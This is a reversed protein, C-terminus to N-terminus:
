YVNTLGADFNLYPNTIVDVHFPHSIIVWDHGLKDFGMSSLLTRIGVNCILIHIYYRTRTMIKALVRVGLGFPPWKANSRNLHM